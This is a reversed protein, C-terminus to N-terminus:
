SRQFRRAAAEACRAPIEARSESSASGSRPPSRGPSSAVMRVKEWSALGLFELSEASGCLTNVRQADREWRVLDSQWAEIFAVCLGPTLLSLQQRAAALSAMAASIERRRAGSAGALRCALRQRTEDICDSRAHIVREWFGERAGAFRQALGMEGPQGDFLAYLGDVLLDGFEEQQARGPDRYPDYSAQTAEGVSALQRQAVLRSFFFLDENYVVPFFSIFNDQALGSLRRAHRVVSNDPFDKCVMGAVQHRDLQAALRRATTPGIGHTSGIPSYTIDDDLFFIKSWGHLRAILLGLNRKLSLDNQRHANAGRFAAATTATPLIPHAFGQPIDVVLARCGAHRSVLRAVDCGQTMRSCLVVLRTDLELSLRLSSGLASVGRSAPVVIADIRCSRSSPPPIPSNVADYMLAAHSNRQRPRYGGFCEDRAV